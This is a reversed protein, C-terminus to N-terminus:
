GHWLLAEEVPKSGASLLQRFAELVGEAVGVLGFRTRKDLPDLHISPALGKTLQVGKDCHWARYALEWRARPTVLVSSAGLSKALTSDMLALYAEDMAHAGPWQYPAEFNGATGVAHDIYDAFADLDPSGCEPLYRISVSDAAYRAAVAGGGGLNKALAPQISLLGFGSFGHLAELSELLPLVLGRHEAGLNEALGFYASGKKM